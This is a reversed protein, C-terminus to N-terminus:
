IGGVRHSLQRGQADYTYETIRNPETIKTPLRFDTHWETTITREQPTGAAETRSLELNRDMDYVYTTTVGNWDTKSIVNGNIDYQYSKNAGECNQTPHGEVQTVKRIGHITTFHYTTQKGLPNTVTTSGDAHYTITTKDVGNAHASSIARGEEDYVWTAFRNGNEDTIGTLKEPFASDEYHYFRADGNPFSAQQLMDNESYKYEYIDNHPDRISIIRNKTDYELKITRGRNDELRDLLGSVDYFLTLSGDHISKIRILRGSLDYEKEIGSHDTLTFGNPKGSTDYKTFLKLTLDADGDWETNIMVGSSVDYYNDFYIVKGDSLIVTATMPVVAQDAEPTVSGEVWRQLPTNVKTEYESRWRAGYIGVLFSSSNYYRTWHLLSSGFVKYDVEKEFKNGVGIDIPNGLKCGLEGFSKFPDVGDRYCKDGDITSIPVWGKPCEYVEHVSFVPLSYIRWYRGDPMKCNNHAAYAIGSSNVESVEDDNGFIVHGARSIESASQYYTWRSCHWALGGDNRIWGITPLSFHTLYQSFYLYQKGDIIDGYYQILNNSPIFSGSYDEIPISARKKTWQIAESNTLFTDASEHINVVWSSQYGDSLYQGKWMLIPNRYQGAHISSCLTFFSVILITCATRKTAQTRDHLSKHICAVKELDIKM